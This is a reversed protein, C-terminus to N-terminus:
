RSLASEVWGHAADQESSSLLPAPGLDAIIQALPADGPAEVSDPALSAVAAPTEQRARIERVVARVEAPTGACEFPVPGSRGCMATLLEINATDGLPDVGGLRAIGAGRGAIADLAAATWLCKPCRGCWTGDRGAKAARNCSLARDAGALPTANLGALVAVEYLPRLPSAYRRGSGSIEAWALEFEASKTWQHNIAWAGGDPLRALINPEDDSRGNGAAVHPIGCLDAAATAAVALWASYPTHGNLYGAANLDLIQPDLRRLMTVPPGAWAGEPASAQVVSRMRETPQYSIPRVARGAQRALHAATISDKGGSHLLLTTETEARRAPPETDQGAPPDLPNGSFDAELTPLWTPDLGNRWLHEGMSRAVFHDWWAQSGPLGGEVLIREPVAAKWYSLADIFALSQGLAADPATPERTGLDEGADLEVHSHFTPGAQLIVTWSWRGGRPAPEWTPAGVHLTPHDRRYRGAAGRRDLHTISHASTTTM